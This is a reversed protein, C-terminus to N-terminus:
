ASSSVPGETGLPRLNGGTQYAVLPIAATVDFWNFLGIGVMPTVTLAAAVANIRQSTTQNTVLVLPNFAVDFYVGLVPSLHGIVESKQVMVLDRPAASPRFVMADFRKEDAGATSAAALAALCALLAAARRVPPEERAELPQCPARAARGALAPLDRRR